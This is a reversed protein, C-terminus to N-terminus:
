RDAREVFPCDSLAAARRTGPCPGATMSQGGIGSGMATSSYLYRGSGHCRDCTAGAQLQRLQHMTPMEDNVVNDAIADLVYDVRDQGDNASM